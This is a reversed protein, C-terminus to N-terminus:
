HDKADAKDYWNKVRKEVKAEWGKKTTDFWIIRKDREFWALQRRAYQREATKWREIIQEKKAEGKFFPEWQRYGLGSMAQRDWSVGKKVLRETEEEAGGEVRADVRQDIREDLKRRPATLGVFLIDFKTKSFRKTLDPRAGAMFQAIEIARILRRPNQRDSVNMKAARVSDLQALIDFLEEPTKESYLRRLTLNRPVSITDIGDVIAKIYLGTGGILIPLKGEKWLRELVTQAAQYWHAVSFEQTPEVLDLLWIRVGGPTEWYGLKGGKYKSGEPLEKGTVIDMGRYVQRSDASLIEGKFKKTLRTGLPTKGVATPGCIVLLKNM